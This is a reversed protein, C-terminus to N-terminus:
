CIFALVFAKASNTSDIISTEVGAKGNTLSDGIYKYHTNTCLKLWFQLQIDCFLLFYDDLTIM